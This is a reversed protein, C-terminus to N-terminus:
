AATDTLRATIEIELHKGPSALADVEECDVYPVPLPAARSFREVLWSPGDHGREIFLSAALVNTWLINEMAMARTVEYFARDFQEDLSAGEEAMGSVFVLGDQVLYHAYRRPPDFDVLRRRNAASPYQVLLDMAVEGASCFRGSDIFSSTACRREGTILKARIDNTAERAARSRTWLRHRVANELSLGVGQLEYRFSDIIEALQEDPSFGIPGERYLSVLTRNAWRIHKM